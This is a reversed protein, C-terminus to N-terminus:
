IHATSCFRLSTAINTSHREALRAHLRYVNEIITMMRLKVPLYDANEMSM